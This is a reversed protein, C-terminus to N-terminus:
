SFALGANKDDFIVLYFFVFGGHCITASMLSLSLNRSKAGMRNMEATVPWRAGFIKPRM